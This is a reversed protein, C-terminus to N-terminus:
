DYGVFNTVELSLRIGGPKKVFDKALSNTKKCLQLQPSSQYLSKSQIHLLEFVM